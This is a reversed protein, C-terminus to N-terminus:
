GATEALPAHATVEQEQPSERPKPNISPHEPSSPSRMPRDPPRGSPIAASINATMIIAVSIAAINVATIIAVSVAALNVATIIAAVGDAVIVAMTIIIAAVIIVM